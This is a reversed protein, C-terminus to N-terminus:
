FFRGFLRLLIPQHSPFPLITTSQRSQPVQNLIFLNSFQKTRAKGNATVKSDSTTSSSTQYVDPLFPIAIADAVTFPFYVIQSTDFDSPGNPVQLVGINQPGNATQTAIDEHQPEIATDVHSINQNDDASSVVDVSLGQLPRDVPTSHADTSNEPTNSTDSTDPANNTHEEFAPATTFSSMVHSDSSTGRPPSPESHSRQGSSSVLNVLGEVQKRQALTDLPNYPNRVPINRLIATIAEEIPDPNGPQQNTTASKQFSQLVQNLQFTLEDNKVHSADLRHQKTLAKEQPTRLDPSLQAQKENQCAM